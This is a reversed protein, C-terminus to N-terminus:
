QAGGAQREAELRKQAAESNKRDLQERINPRPKFSDRVIDLHRAQAEPMDKSKPKPYQNTEEARKLWSKILSKAHRPTPLGDSMDAVWERIDVFAASLHVNPHESIMDTIFTITVDFDADNCKIPTFIVEREKESYFDLAININSNIPDNIPDPDSKPTGEGQILPVGEGQIQPAESKPTSSEQPSDSLTGENKLYGQKQPVETKPTDGGQIQPVEGDDNQAGKPVSCVGNKVFLLEYINSDNLRGRRRQHSKVLGMAELKKIHGTVTTTNGFGGERALTNKSPWCKGHEDAYNALLILLLKQPPKIGDINIAAAVAQFSM